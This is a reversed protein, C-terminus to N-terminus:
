AVAATQATFAPSSGGYTAHVGTVRCSMKSGVDAATLTRTVATAGSIASDGRYWQYLYSSAAPVWPSPAPTVTLVQGNTPTGAITPPVVAAPSPEADAQAQTIAGGTPPTATAAAEAASGVNTPPTKRYPTETGFIPTDFSFMSPMRPDGPGGIPPVAKVEQQAPNV